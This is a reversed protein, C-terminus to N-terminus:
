WAFYRGRLPILPNLIRESYTWNIIFLCFIACFIRLTDFLSSQCIDYITYSLDRQRLLKEDLLVYILDMKVVLLSSGIFM